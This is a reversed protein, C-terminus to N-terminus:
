VGQKSLFAPVAMNVIYALVGLLGICLNAVIWGHATRSASRAGAIDGQALKTSVQAAYIIAIIGGIQCCFLATLVAMVMHTPVVPKGDASFGKNAVPVGCRPCAVAQDSIEAGCERCFM